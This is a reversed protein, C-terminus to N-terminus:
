LKSDWYRDLYSKNIKPTGINNKGIGYTDANIHQQLLKKAREAISKIVEKIVDEFVNDLEVSDHIAM